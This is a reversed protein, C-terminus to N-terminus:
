DCVFDGTVACADVAHLFENLDDCVGTWRFVKNQITVGFFKERKIVLIYTDGSGLMYTDEDARREYAFDNIKFFEETLKPTVVENVPVSVLMGCRVTNEDIATIKEKHGNHLIFDGIRLTKNM